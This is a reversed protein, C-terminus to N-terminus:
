NPNESKKEIIVMEILSPSGVRKYVRGDKKPKQIDM